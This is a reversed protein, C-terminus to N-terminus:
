VRRLLLWRALKLSCFIDGHNRVSLNLYLFKLGSAVDGVHTALNIQSTAFLPTRCKEIM